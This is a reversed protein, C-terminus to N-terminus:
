QLDSGKNEEVTVMYCVEAQKNRRITPKNLRKTCGTLRAIRYIRRNDNDGPPDVYKRNEQSRQVVGSAAARVTEQATM